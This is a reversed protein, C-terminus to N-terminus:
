AFYLTHLGDNSAQGLLDLFRLNSACKEDVVGLNPTSLVGSLLTLNYMIGEIILELDISWKDRETCMLYVLVILDWFSMLLTNGIKM